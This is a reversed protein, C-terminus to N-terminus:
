PKTKVFVKIVIAIAIVLGPVRVIVIVEVMVKIIVVVIAIVVETETIIVVIVTPDLARTHPYSLISPTKRPRVHPTELFYQAPQKQPVRYDSNITHQPYM